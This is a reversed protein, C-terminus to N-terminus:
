TTPVAPDPEVRVRTTYDKGGITLKVVYIGPEVAAGGFGGRGGGGARGIAAVAAQQEPTLTVGGRGAAGAQASAPAQPPDQTLTWQIRNLGAAKTACNATQNQGCANFTRIVRGTYDAITLKIDGAPVSKLYYSVATGREPNEGRFHKQGGIQPVHSDSAWAIAARPEFLTV